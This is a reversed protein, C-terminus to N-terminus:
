CILKKENQKALVGAVDNKSGKTGSNAILNCLFM